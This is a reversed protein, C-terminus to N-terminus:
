FYNSEPIIGNESPEINKNIQSISMPFEFPFSSINIKNNLEKDIPKILPAEQLKICNDQKQSM